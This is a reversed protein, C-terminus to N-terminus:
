SETNEGTFLYRLAAGVGQVIAKGLTFGAGFFLGWVFVGVLAEM